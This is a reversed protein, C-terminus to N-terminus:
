GPAFAYSELFGCRECRFVTIPMRDEDPVRIGRWRVDKPPGPAWTSQRKSGYDDDVVFGERLPGSCKPCDGTKQIM